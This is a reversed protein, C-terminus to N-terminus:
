FLEFYEIAYSTGIGVVTTAAIGVALSTGLGPVLGWVLVATVMQNNAILTERGLFENVIQKPPAAVGVIGGGANGSDRIQQDRMAEVDATGDTFSDIIRQGHVTVNEWVEDDRPFEIRLDDNIDALAVGSSILGTFMALVVLKYM